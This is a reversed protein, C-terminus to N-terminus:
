IQHLQVQGHCCIKFRHTGCQGGDSKKIDQLINQHNVRKAAVLVIKKRRIMSTLSNGIRAVFNPCKSLSSCVSCRPSEYMVKEVEDWWVRNFEYKSIMHKEHYLKRTIKAGWYQEFATRSSGTVKM